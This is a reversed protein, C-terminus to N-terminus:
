EDSRLGRTWGVGRRLATCRQEAAPRPRTQLGKERLIAHWERVLGPTNRRRIVDNTLQRHEGVQVRSVGRCGNDCREEGEM